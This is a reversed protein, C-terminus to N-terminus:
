NMPTLVAGNVYLAYDTPLVEVLGPGGFDLAGEGIACTVDSCRRWQTMLAGDARAVRYVGPEVESGVLWQGDTTLPDVTGAAPATNGGSDRATNSSTAPSNSGTDRAGPGSVANIFFGFALIAVIVWPWRRKKKAPPQAPPAYNPQPHTM